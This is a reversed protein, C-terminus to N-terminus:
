HEFRLALKADGSSEASVQVTLVRGSTSTEARVGETTRAGAFRFGEPVRFRYSFAHGGVVALDLELSTGIWQCDRLCTGGQTVHRDTSLFQPHDVSKHLAVLRVGRAPVDLSLVDTVEGLDTSTWFEWATYTGAKLGLADLSTQVPHDEDDWNFLAVVDWEGFPRRIKLDWVPRMAFVPYLDLPRVDCVPLSQQLLRM